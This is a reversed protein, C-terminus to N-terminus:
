FMRGFCLEISTVQDTREPWNRRGNEFRIGINKGTEKNTFLKFQFRSMHDVFDKSKDLDWPMGYNYELYFPGYSANAGIFNYAYINESYDSMIVYGLQLEKFGNVGIRLNDNLQYSAQVGFQVDITLWMSKFVRTEPGGIEGDPNIKEVAYGTAMAAGLYDGIRLRNDGDRNILFDIVSVHGRMMLGYLKQHMHWGTAEAVNKKGHFGVGIEYNQMQAQAQSTCLVALLVTLAPITLQRLTKM